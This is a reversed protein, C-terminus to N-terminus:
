SNPPESTSLMSSSSIACRAWALNQEVLLTHAQVVGVGHQALSFVMQFGFQRGHDSKVAGSDNLGDAVPHRVEPGPSRTAVHEIEASIGFTRVM